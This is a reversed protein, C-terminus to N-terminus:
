NRAPNVRTRLQSVFLQELLQPDLIRLQMFGDLPLGGDRFLRAPLVLLHHMPQLVLVPRQLLRQLQRLTLLAALLNRGLKLGHVHLLHVFPVLSRQVVLPLNRLELQAKPYAKRGV